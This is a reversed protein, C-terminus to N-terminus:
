LAASMVKLDFLRWDLDPAGLVQQRSLEWSHGVPAQLRAVDPFAQCATAQVQTSFQTALLCRQQAYGCGCVFTGLVRYSAVCVDKCLLGGVQLLCGHVFQVITALEKPM